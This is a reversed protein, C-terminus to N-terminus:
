NIVLNFIQSRSQPTSWSISPLIPHSLISSHNTPFPPLFFYMVSLFPLLEQSLYPIMLNQVHWHFSHIFLKFICSNSTICLWKCVHMYLFGVPLPLPRYNHTIHQVNRYLECYHDTECAIKSVLLSLPYIYICFNNMKPLFDGFVTSKAAVCVHPNLGLLRIKWYGCLVYMCVYMYVNWLDKLTVLCYSTSCTMFM